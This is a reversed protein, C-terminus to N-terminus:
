RNAISKDQYGEVPCGRSNTVYINVCRGRTQAAFQSALCWAERETPITKEETAPFYDSRLFGDGAHEFHVRYGLLEQGKIIQMAEAMKM